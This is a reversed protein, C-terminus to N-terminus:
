WHNNHSISDVVNQGDRYTDFFDDGQDYHSDFGCCEWDGGTLNLVFQNCMPNSGFFSQILCKDDSRASLVYSPKFAKNADQLNDSKSSLSCFLRGGCWSLFAWQKTIVESCVRSDNSSSNPEGNRRKRRPTFSASHMLDAAAANFQRRPQQDQLQVPAIAISPLRVDLTEWLSHFTTEDIEGCRLMGHCLKDDDEDDSSCGEDHDLNYNQSSFVLPCPRLCALGAIRFPGSSLTIDMDDDEDFQDDEYMLFDDNLSFGGGSTNGSMASNNGDAISVSGGGGVEREIVHPLGDVGIVLKNSQQQQRQRGNLWRSIHTESSMERFSVHCNIEMSKGCDRYQELRVEWSISGGAKIDNRYVCSSSSSSFSNNNNSTTHSENTGFDKYQDQPFVDSKQQAVILELRLGNEISVAM